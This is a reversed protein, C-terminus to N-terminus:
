APKLARFDRILLADRAGVHIVAPGAGDVHAGLTYYITGDIERLDDFHQHGQFGAIVKGSAQIVKLVAEYNRVAHMGDSDVRQHSLIIVPESVSGLASELWELQEEPIFSERWDFNGNEYERGDPSFNGDLCVTCVGDHDISWTSASGSQGLAEHFQMKSLHDLDHNGPMYRVTGCFSDCLSSVERLLQQAHTTSSANVLDGMVVLLGAGSQNLAAVSEYLRNMAEGGGDYHLDNLLGIKTQEVETM